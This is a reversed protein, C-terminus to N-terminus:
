RRGGLGDKEGIKGKVELKWENKIKVHVHTM